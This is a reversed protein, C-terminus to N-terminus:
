ITINRNFSGEENIIYNHYHLIAADIITNLYVNVDQHKAKLENLKRVTSPRLQYTRKITFFEGDIPPTLGRPTSSSINDNFTLFDNSKSVPSKQELSLENETLAASKNFNFSAISKGIAVDGEIFGDDEYDDMDLSEINSINKKKL